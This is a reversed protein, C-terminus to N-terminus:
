SKSGSRVRVKRTAQISSEPIDRTLRPNRTCYLLASPGYVPPVAKLERYFKDNIKINKNDLIKLKNSEIKRTGGV